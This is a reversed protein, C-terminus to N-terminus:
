PNANNALYDDVEFFSIQCNSPKFALAAQYAPTPRWTELHWATAQERDGDISVLRASEETIAIDTQDLPKTLGDGSAKLVAEKCTWIKFFADHKEQGSLSTVLAVEHPSFVHRALADIDEMARIYEVDIGLERDRCFAYVVRDNSHALNFEIAPPHDNTKLAPKGHPGYSFEIRAPDISLYGGLLIRLLGRGVIFRARDREFYFRKARATEDPSLLAALSAVTQLARQLTASWVQAEGGALNLAPPSPQRKGSSSEDPANKQIM